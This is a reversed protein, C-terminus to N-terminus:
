APQLSVVAIRHKDPFLDSQLRAFVFDFGASLEGVGSQGIMAEPIQRISRSITQERVRVTTLIMINDGAFRHANEVRLGNPADM